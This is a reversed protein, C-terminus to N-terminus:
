NMRHTLYGDCKEVKNKVVSECLNYFLCLFYLRLIGQWSLKISFYGSILIFLNVGISFFSAISYQFPSLLISDGYENQNLGHVIFHWIVIMMMALIRILEINSKRM